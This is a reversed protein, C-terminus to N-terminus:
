LVLCAAACRDGIAVEPQVTRVTLDQGAPTNSGNWQTPQYAFGAAGRLRDAGSQTAISIAAGLGLPTAADVAGTKVEIDTFTESSFQSYLTSGQLVSTADAGDVMAVGSGQLTGHLYYTQFRAQNVVVGPTLQLFDSWHRMGSLPLARSLDGDIHVAQAPIKWELMPTEGPVTVIDTLSGIPMTVDLALNLGERVAINRRILTAFAPADVTVVYEAPPLNNLRYRGAQDTSVAHPGPASESEARVMANALAGAQEDRVYGSISGGTATQACVAATAGITLWALAALLARRSPSAGRRTARAPAVAIASPQVRECVMCPSRERSGSVPASDAERGCAPRRQATQSAAVAHHPQDRPASAAEAHNGNHHRLVTLLERRHDGHDSEARSWAAPAGGTLHPPLDRATIFGPCEQVLAEELANQLERVNGPWHYAVLVAMAEDSVQKLPVGLRMAARRAHYEVLAPLDGRRDRLPPLFLSVVSLRFFLDERFRKERIETRLDRNTAAVVRVDVFRLCTDGVARIEGSDLFRLLRGQMPLPMDGIEDLFLVGGEAEEILGKSSVGAGTFAGRKYGFLETEVLAEPLSGCNVPVFKGHRRRNQRHM